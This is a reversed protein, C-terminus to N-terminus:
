SECVRSTICETADKHTHTM